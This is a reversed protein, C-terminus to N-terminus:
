KYYNLQMKQSTYIKDNADVIMCEVGVLKNVLELGMKVGMVSVSTALADSLEADTCIITVSKTETVPYGTRPNIIHSYRIGNSYFYKEYDGSTVISLNNLRIWGLPKTKDKPDSIQVSWGDKNTSEGWAILDGSANVVGGVVGPIKEMLAKARNASYGKGIAGFGIKMGKEKLFVTHLEKNLVINHWNIKESANRVSNSDPMVHEQRDFIWIKDMAAFSIDFAGKTLESIKNSRFIIDYLEKDVKVASVGAMKNIYSTQTTSDWESLLKEIRVIESIGVNVAKVATTKETATATLEFRCGMLKVIQKHSFVEAAIIQTFAIELVLILLYQRM